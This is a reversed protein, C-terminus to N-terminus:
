EESTSQGMVNMTLSIVLYGQYGSGEQFRSGNGLEYSLVVKESM